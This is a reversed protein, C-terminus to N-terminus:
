LFLSLFRSLRIRQLTPEASYALLEVGAVQAMRLLGGYAPDIQDAPAFSLADGRQVCFCCVARYGTRVMAMLERLHKSGRTTVADPFRAQGEIVLTVNKVEVYCDARGEGRLLLDIRSNESGYNVETRIETYGALERIVGTEIAERVLHNALGTNIGVMQGDLTEVLEWSFPYKRKPNGSDRLWVRSGPEACGQMSGTNPTHATVIQGDGLEVDALFRKYRRILRGSILPQEFDM